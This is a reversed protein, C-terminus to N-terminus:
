KELHWGHPDWRFGLGGIGLVCLECWFGWRSCWSEHPPQVRLAIWIVASGGEWCLPWALPWLGNHQFSGLFTSFPTPWYDTHVGVMCKMKPPTQCESPLICCPVVTAEKQQIEKEKKNQCPQHLAHLRFMTLGRALSRHAEAYELSLTLCNHVLTPCLYLSNCNRSNM